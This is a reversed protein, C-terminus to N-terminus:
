MGLIARNDALVDTGNVIRKMNIADIEHIVVGGHELKYYNLDLEFKLPELKGPESTGPDMKNIKGRMTHVVGTKTGDQSQLLERVVFPVVQGVAVGFLALAQRKYSILSFSATLKEMGMEIAVPLDMGGARVDETTLALAPANFDKSEGAMGQGDVFINFNVRVDNTAAM